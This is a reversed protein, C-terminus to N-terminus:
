LGVRDAPPDPSRRTIRLFGTDAGLPTVRLKLGSIDAVAEVSNRSVIQRMGGLAYGVGVVGIREPLQELLATAEASNLLRAASEVDAALYPAYLAGFEPLRNTIEAIPMFAMDLAGTQLQQLMQADNGLQAAPFVVVSLQGGSREELAAAFANAEVTWVHTPPTPLGMRFRESEAQGQCSAVVLAAVLVAARRTISFESM